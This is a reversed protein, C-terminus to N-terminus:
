ISNNVEANLHRNQIPAMSMTRPNHGKVGTSGSTSRYGGKNEGEISQAKTSTMGLKEMINPDMKGKVKMKEFAENIMTKQVIAQKQM